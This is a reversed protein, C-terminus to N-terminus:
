VTGDYSVSKNEVRNTNIRLKQCCFSLSLSLNVSHVHKDQSDNTVPCINYSHYSCAYHSDNDYPPQCM